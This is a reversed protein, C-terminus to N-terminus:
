RLVPNRLAGFRKAVIEGNWNTQRAESDAKISYNRLPLTDRSTRRKRWERPAREGMVASSHRLIIVTIYRVLLARMHTDYGGLQTYLDRYASKTWTHM